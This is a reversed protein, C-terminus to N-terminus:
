EQGSQEVSDSDSPESAQGSGEGDQHQKLDGEPENGEKTDNTDGGKKEELEHQNILNAIAIVAGTLRGVSEKAEELQQIYSAHHGRLREILSVVPVAETLAEELLSM